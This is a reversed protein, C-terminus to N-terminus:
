LERLGVLMGIEPPISGTLGLYNWNITTVHGDTCVIGNRRCCDDPIRKVNGGMKQYIIRVWHCDTRSIHDQGFLFNLVTDM